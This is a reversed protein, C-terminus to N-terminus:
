AYQIQFTSKVKSHKVKKTTESSVHLSTSLRTNSRKAFRPAVPRIVERNLYTYLSESSLVIPNEM